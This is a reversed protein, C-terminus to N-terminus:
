LDHYAQSVSFRRDNGNKSRWIIHDEKNSDLQIMQHMLLAPYKVIWEMPWTCRGNEVIDKVDMCESRRANYIDRSTIFNQLVGVGCWNDYIVSAKEGNGIEMVMFMRAEDRLRLINKWSWSDNAEENIAWISEKLGLGGMSKPRCISAWAVKAKGKSLEGQSWLFIKLMKNIDHIVAYSLCKNEWNHVRSKIKDLLSRRNNVSLRKSSLPVGLYKVPLKEVHFPVCELIEQQDEVKMSGFIITDKNRGVKDHVILSLIEMVLTFLYPSMPDGQRLGRGGKFYGCNEGNVCISYAVTTVCRMIWHVMKSAIRKPGDKRDCGKLLEQSLLINDQIHRQPVFASQNLGVLKDLVGKMRNTILKSICKYIVNCCAIPRFDTVKNPTQTKPILSILTYNIEKLMKDKSFFEKVVECVDKGVITWARKFFHSSFGDPGPAKNGDIQFMAEKIEADEIYDKVDVVNGLFDQFHKVFQVVVDDRNYLTGKSDRVCNIRSKHMRSKIVKHFYANNRDGYSLWKIKAKQYLLHEEDKLAETYKGLCLSEEMRLAKDSLNKDIKVQIESLQAKISKVRDFVNGDKWTLKKLERKSSKLKKVTKFMQCGDYKNPSHDLILYPLFVTHAHPFKDIFEENGMIRDLKKLVGTYDGAKVVIRKHIHLENWLIRREKGGNAAYVFTCFLSHDGSVTHIEYFISQKASQVVNLNIKDNNWGLMIMYGKDCY